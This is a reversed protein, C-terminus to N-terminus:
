LGRGAREKSRQWSAWITSLGTVSGGTALVAAPWEAGRIGLYVTGAIVGTQLLAGAVMGLYARRNDGRIVVSELSRRHEAQLEYGRMIREAGDAVVQDYQALEHPSPLPGSRFELRDERTVIQRDSKQLSSSAPRNDRGAKSGRSM